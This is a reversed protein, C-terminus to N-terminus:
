HTAACVWRIVQGLQCPEALMPAFKPLSGLLLEVGVTVDMSEKDVTVSSMNKMDLIIKTNDDDNGECSAGESVSHYAWTAVNSSSHGGCVVAVATKQNSALLKAIEKTSEPYYIVADNQKVDELQELTSEKNGSISWTKDKFWNGASM